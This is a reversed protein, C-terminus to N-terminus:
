RAVCDAERQRRVWIVVGDRVRSIRRCRVDISPFVAVLRSPSGEQDNAAREGKDKRHHQKERNTAVLRTIAPNTTARSCADAARPSLDTADDGHGNAGKRRLQLARNHCRAHGGRRRSSLLSQPPSAPAASIKSAIRPRGNRDRRAQLPRHPVALLLWRDAALRASVRSANAWREPSCRWCM